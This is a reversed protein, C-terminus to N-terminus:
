RIQRVRSKVMWVAQSVYRLSSNPCFRADAELFFCSLPIIRYISRSVVSGNNAILLDIGVLDVPGKHAARFVGIRSHFFSSIMAIARDDYVDALTTRCRYKQGCPCSLKQFKMMSAAPPVINPTNAANRVICCRICNPTGHYTQCKVVKPPSRPQYRPELINGKPMVTPENVSNKIRISNMRTAWFRNNGPTMINPANM